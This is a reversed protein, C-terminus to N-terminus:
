LSYDSKGTDVLMGDLVSVAADRGKAAKIIEYCMNTVSSPGNATVFNEDVVSRKSEVVANGCLDEFGPYCTMKRGDLWGGQAFVVAPAACIAAINGGRLHQAKVLSNVPESRHLNEAGPMGGPLVIWTPKTDAVDSIVADAKITVGHAGTVDKKDTISISAVNLGGRRLIDVAGIAEIEEFGDAFLVLADFGKKLNEDFNM